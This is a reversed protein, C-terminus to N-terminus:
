RGQKWIPHFSYSQRLLVTNQDSKSPYYFILFIVRGKSEKETIPKSAENKAKISAVTKEYIQKEEALTVNLSKQTFNKEPVKKPTHQRWGVPPLNRNAKSRNLKSSSKLKSDIPSTLHELSALVDRTKEPLNM